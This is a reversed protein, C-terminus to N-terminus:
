DNLLLKSLHLKISYQFKVIAQYINYVKLIYRKKPQYFVTLVVQKIKIRIITKKIVNM